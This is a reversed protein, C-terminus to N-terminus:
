VMRLKLLRKGDTRRWNKLGKMIKGYEEDKCTVEEEIGKEQCVRIWILLIRNCKIEGRWDRHNWGDSHRDEHCM